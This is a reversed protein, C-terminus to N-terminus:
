QWQSPSKCLVESAFRYSDLKLQKERSISGRLLAGLTENQKTEGHLGSLSSRLQIGKLEKTIELSIESQDASIPNQPPAAMGTWPSNYGLAAKLFSPPAKACSVYGPNATCGGSEKWTCLFLFSVGVTWEGNSCGHGLTSNQWKLCFDANHSSIYDLWPRSWPQSYM